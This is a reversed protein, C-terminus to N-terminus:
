GRERLPKVQSLKISLPMEDLRQLLTAVAQFSAALAEERLNDSRDRPSHWYPMLGNEDMGLVAIARYGKKIAM